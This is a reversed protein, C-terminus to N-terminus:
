MERKNRRCKLNGRRTEKRMYVFLSQLYLRTNGGAGTEVHGSKEGKRHLKFMRGEKRKETDLRKM